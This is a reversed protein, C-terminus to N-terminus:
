SVARRIEVYTSSVSFSTAPSDIHVFELIHFIVQSLYKISSWRNKQVYM